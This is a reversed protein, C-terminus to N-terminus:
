ACARRPCRAGVRGAPRRVTAAGFAPQRVSARTANMPPKTSNMRFGASAQATPNMPSSVEKAVACGTVPAAPGYCERPCITNSKPSRTCKWAAEAAALVDHPRTIVLKVDVTPMGDIAELAAVEIRLGECALIRARHLGIPNPRNRTCTSLVSTLPQSMDGQAAHEVRRPAEETPPSCTFGPSCWSREGIVRALRDQVREMYGTMSGRAISLWSPDPKLGFVHPASVSASGGADVRSSRGDLDATPALANPSSPILNNSTPVRVVFVPDVTIYAASM